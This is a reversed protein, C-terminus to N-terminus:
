QTAPHSATRQARCSARRDSRDTGAPDRAAGHSRAPRTRRAITSDRRRPAADVQDLVAGPEHGLIVQQLGDPRSGDDLLVVEVCAIEASRRASPSARSAGPEDDRNRAAAIPKDRSTLTPATLLARTRSRGCDGPGGSSFGDVGAAVFAACSTTSLQQSSASPRVRRGRRQRRGLRTGAWAEGDRGRSSAPRPRGAASAAATPPTRTTGDTRLCGAHRPRNRHQRELREDLLGRVLRHLKTDRLCQDIAQAAQGANRHGRQTGHAPEGAAVLIRESGPAVEVHGGHDFTM